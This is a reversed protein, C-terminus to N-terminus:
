FNQNLYGNGILGVRKGTLDVTEDWRASHLLKGEFKELGPVAPWRWANLVGTANIFIDCTDFFEDGNSVDRITVQWSGTGSEWAAGIVQHSTKCYQNLGHKAAFDEFYRRVEPGSAYVSPWDAKPEFSYTYNHAPFDCACRPAVDIQYFISEISSFILTGRTSTKSGCEVSEEMKKM